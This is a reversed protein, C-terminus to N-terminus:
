SQDWTFRLARRLGSSSDIGVHLVLSPAAEVVMTVRESCLCLGRSFILNGLCRGSFHEEGVDLWLVPFSRESNCIVVFELLFQLLIFVRRPVM